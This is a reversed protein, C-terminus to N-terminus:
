CGALLAMVDIFGSQLFSQLVPFLDSVSLHSLMLL